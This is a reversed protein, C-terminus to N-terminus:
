AATRWWGLYCKPEMVIHGNCLQHRPIEKILLNAAAKKAGRPDNVHRPHTVLLSTTMTMLAMGAPTARYELKIRYVHRYGFAQNFWERISM